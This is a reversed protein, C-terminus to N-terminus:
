EGNRKGKVVEEKDKLNDGSVKEMKGRNRKERRKLERKSMKLKWECDKKDYKSSKTKDRGIRNEESDGKIRKQPRKTSSM